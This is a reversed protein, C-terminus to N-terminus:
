EFYCDQTSDSCRQLTRIEGECGAIPGFRVKVRTTQHAHGVTCSCAVRNCPQWVGMIAEQETPTLISVPVTPNPSSGSLSAHVTWDRMPYSTRRGPGLSQGCRLDRVTGQNWWGCAMACGTSFAAIPPEEEGMGSAPKLLGTPSGAGPLFWGAGPGIPPGVDPQNRM